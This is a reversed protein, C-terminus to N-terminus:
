GESCHHPELNEMEKAINYDIIPSLLQSDLICSIAGEPCAIECSLCLVCNQGWEPFGEEDVRVNDTPCADVCKRCHICAEEDVSFTRSLIHNTLWRKSALRELRYMLPPSPDFQSVPPNDIGYRSVVGIAFSRAQDLEKRSPNQSCFLVGKRTYAPFHNTGQSKLYGIDRGGKESLKKRIDNGTDGVHISYLAFVFFPMGNLTPLSQVYETMLSSAHFFFTPTGIGLVDYDRVLRSPSEKALNTTDVSWGQERLNESIVNAIKATSGMQSFYIIQCNVM